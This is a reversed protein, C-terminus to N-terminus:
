NQIEWKFNSFDSLMKGPKLHKFDYTVGGSNFKLQSIFDSFEKLAPSELFAKARYKINNEVTNIISDFNPTAAKENMEYNTYLLIHTVDLTFRKLDGISIDKILIGYDIPNNFNWFDANVRNVIQICQIQFEKYDNIIMQALLCAEVFIPPSEPASKKSIAYDINTLINKALQYREDNSFLNNRKSYDYEFFPVLFGNKLFIVKKCVEITPKLAPNNRGNEFIKNVYKEYNELFVNYIPTHYILNGFFHLANFYDPLLSEIMIDKVLLLKDMLAGAMGSEVTKFIYASFDNPGSKRAKDFELTSLNNKLLTYAFYKDFSQAYVIENTSLYREKARSDDGFISIIFSSLLQLESNTLNLAEQHEAFFKHFVYKHSMNLEKQQFEHAAREASNVERWETEVMLRLSLIFDGFYMKQRIFFYEKQEVLLEYVHQFKLKLLHITFLDELDIEGQLSNLEFFFNNAFRIIDRQTKLFFPKFDTGDITKYLITSIEKAREDGFTSKTINVFQQKLIDYDFVPLVFEFQFIKELYYEHNYENLNKVANLIYGKDYCVIFTVGKFDATNRVLRIVEIIEDKALRDLDDIVIIIQKGLTPIKENIDNYLTTKGKAEETFSLILSKITKTYITADLEVLKDAYEKISFSLKQNVPTINQILLDFFDKIIEATSKSKWPQFHIIMKNEYSIFNLIMNLFSTKGSGWPGNIGIAVSNQSNTTSEIKQAIMKAFVKRGFLDNEYSLIPNDYILPAEKPTITEKKLKPSLMKTVILGLCFIALWDSYYINHLGINKFSLFIYRGSLRSILYLVTLTLCWFLLQNSIRRKNYISVFFYLITFAFLITIVIDTYITAKANSLFKDVVITEYIERISTFFLIFCLLLLTYLVTRKSFLKEFLFKKFQLIVQKTKQILSLTEIVSIISL